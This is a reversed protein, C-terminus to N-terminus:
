GTSPRGHDPSLPWRCRPRPRSALRTARRRGMAARRVDDVARQRDLVLREALHRLADDRERELAALAAATDGRRAVLLAAFRAAYISRLHGLAARLLATYGRSVRACAIAVADSRARRTSGISPSGSGSKSTTRAGFGRDTGAV